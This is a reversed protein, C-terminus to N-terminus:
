VDSKSGTLNYVASGIVAGAVTFLSAVGIVAMVSGFIILARVFFSPHVGQGFIGSALMVGAYGGYLFAPFMAFVIFLLFGVVAGTISFTKKM